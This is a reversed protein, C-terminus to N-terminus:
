RVFLRRAFDLRKGSRNNSPYEDNIQTKGIYSMLEWQSVGLLSASQAISIGHNYLKSGKKIHAKDIVDQIYLKFKTDLESIGKTINRVIQRYKHVEERLLHSKAHKLLKASEKFDVGREIIKSLSYVVVAISISDEDQFIFSNHITHDSLSKLSVIDKSLVAKSAKELIDILDKRVHDIM